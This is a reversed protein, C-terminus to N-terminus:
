RLQKVKTTTCHIYEGTLVFCTNCPKDFVGKHRDECDECFITSEKIQEKILKEKQCDDCEHKCVGNCNCESM